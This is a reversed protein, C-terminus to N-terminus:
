NGMVSWAVYLGQGGQDGIPPFWPTKSQDVISPLSDQFSVSDVSSLSTAMEIWEQETHPALGTGHNGIKQNYNQGEVYVGIKSKLTNLESSTVKHEKITAHALANPSQYETSLSKAEAGLIKIEFVLFVSLLLLLILGVGLTKGRSM